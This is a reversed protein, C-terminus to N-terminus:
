DSWHPREAALRVSLVKDYSSRMRLVIVACSDHVTLASRDHRALWADMNRVSRLSHVLLGVDRSLHRRGSRWWSAGCGSLLLWKAHHVLWIAWVAEMPLRLRPRLSRRLRLLM